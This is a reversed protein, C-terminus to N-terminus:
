VVGKHGNTLSERFGRLVSATKRAEEEVDPEEPDEEQNDAMAELAANVDRVGIAMLAQQQVDQSDAFEPFLPILAAMSAAIVGADEPTIDPFDRDVYRRDESIGAHELIIQDIDDYVGEWATQYSQCMKMVPLEVTKATALNGISIDGFYQEPWGTGASIQLKLMRGDQYAQQAGTDTKIPQLDTGMNEIRVAGAAPTEDQLGAKAETVAAAGGQVKEKWAFRALALMVAARSSLFRRYLQIWDIVPYLLPIGRQGITNYAFHYILADETSSRSGGAADLTDKDKQNSVSRYYGTKSKNQPTYWERKYYRVDEVDDENTIIETIETPDITRITAKGDPGLFIAFFIEGDILVKDSCKRQGSASLVSKNEPAGWFAELVETTREDESSWSMGTGFTYDTWLRIAQKGLPDKTAYTRSRTVAIRREDATLVNHSVVGAQTGWGVSELKLANEISQYAERFVMDFSDSRIEETM